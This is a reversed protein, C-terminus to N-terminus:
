SILLPDPEAEHDIVVLLGSNVADSCAIPEVEKAMAVLVGNSPAMALPDPLALADNEIDAVMSGVLSALGNRVADALKAM